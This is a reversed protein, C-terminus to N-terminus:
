ICDSPCSMFDEGPDCVSNGCSSDCVDGVNDYDSDTQDPNYMNSCNDCEDGLGDGDMDSQSPNYSPCNDSGDPAGDGDSDPAPCDTSCSNFDEGADCIANGCWGDCADGQGDFDSDTQDSQWTNPCNDCADEWSDGDANNEDSQWNYPCLDCADGRADGDSNAQDSNGTTPCNDVSDTIGDSDADPPTCDASCNNYDEGGDCMGNGCWPDCADGSGDSDSDTQDSQWTSPCNDCADEWADGDGNNQDSQWSYMCNDCADGWADGDSNEQYTNPTNVCNDSSDPVTDSDADPLGCDLSCNNSDEGADCASNGCWPDCADGSGDFDSDNQDTQWTSPCNDCADEWADGDSNNQDSQWTYPCNDCADGFADGDSNAQDWNSTLQCNDTSDEVGDSDADPPPCDTSCSNYDEGADCMANGCWPDCTDGSGDSDSDTQDGQWDGPCNDCADEWADGDSNNQDSQWTTPCNDCADGYGDGDADEQSANSTSDCNDLDDCILDGDTDGTNNDGYCTDTDDCISDADADGSCPPACTNPDNSPDVDSPCTDCADGVGDGDGDDQNDPDNVCKDNDNCYGDADTDGSSPDGGACSPGPYKSTNAAFQNSVYTADVASGIVRMLAVRGAFGGAGYGYGQDDTSLTVGPYMTATPSVGTHVLSGDLYLKYNGAQEGTVVVHHWDYLAAEHVLVAPLHGAAHEMVMVGNTGIILGIGVGSGDAYDIAHNQAIIIPQDTGGINGSSSETEVIMSKTPAVWLEYTFGGTSTIDINKVAIGNEEERAEAWDDDGALLLAYPNGPSGDGTWGSVGDCTTSTNQLDFYVGLNSSTTTTSCAPAGNGSGAIDANFEVVPDFGNPEVLCKVIPDNCDERTGNNCIETGGSCIACSEPDNAPDWDSPCTDCVDGIGDADGDSNSGDADSPCLDCADGVGDTDTDEQGPDYNSACIDCADGIYDSDADEQGANAVMPCNDAPTSPMGTCSADPYGDGDADDCDDCQGPDNSPDNVAPCADCDDQLGDGDTDVASSPCADCVDGMGDADTDVNSSDADSPCTDCADDVEDSDTDGVNMNVPCSDCQDGVGDADSDSQDSSTNPCLDIADCLGDNDSDSAVSDDYGACIDCGDDVGDNDTDMGLTNLCTDCADDLGDNDGDGIDADYPCTDCGDGSGDGDSDAYLAPDAPCNDEDDCFGDSDGNDCAAIAVNMTTTIDNLVVSVTATSASLIKDAVVSGTSANVGADSSSFSLSSKPVVIETNDWLIAKYTVTPEQGAAVPTPDVEAVLEKVPSSPKLSDTLDWKQTAAGQRASNNDVRGGTILASNIVAGSFIVDNGPGEAVIRASSPALTASLEAALGDYNSGTHAAGVIYTKGSSGATVGNLICDRAPDHTFLTIGEGDVGGTIDAQGWGSILAGDATGVAAAACVWPGSGDKNSGVAILATGWAGTDGFALGSPVSVSGGGAVSFDLADGWPSSAEVLSTNFKHIRFHRTAPLNETALVYFSSSSSDYVMGVATGVYSTIKVVSGSAAGTSASFNAIFTRYNAASTGVSGAVTFLGSGSNYAISRPFAHGNTSNGGIDLAKVGSTGFSNVRAGSSDVKLAYVDYYGNARMSRCVVVFGDGVWTGASCLNDLGAGAFDYYQVGPQSADSTKAFSGNAFGGSALKSTVKAVNKGGVYAKGIFLLSDDNGPQSVVFRYLANGSTDTYEPNGFEGRSLSSLSLALLVFSLKITRM